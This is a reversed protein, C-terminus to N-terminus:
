ATRTSEEYTMPWGGSFDYNEPSESAEMAARHQEAVKFIAQDGYAITTFIQGALTQTMAIFTGDMTKWMLGPPINAGMMVLGIQQIRSTDDSHYWKDGVKIGSAKRLDREAKIKLWMAEKVYGEVAENLEAEPPLPDGGEWVLNAYVSADGICSVQCNPYFDSIARVFNHM